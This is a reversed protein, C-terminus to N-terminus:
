RVARRSVRITDGIEITLGDTGVELPGRYHRRTHPILDDATAPSPVIHSYVALRPNVRAFIRGAQEPTTHHAIVRETTAPDRLQSLRRDADGSVVEHILVDAGRSHRVLEESPRTDGSLVVAHGGFDVRYGFAPAVPAHDVAFTTVRVGARDFVLGPAADTAELVVGAAPLREDIDRRHRIDFAYAQPLHNAFNRTGQPGIVPLARDRGFIWGTLWVDAFGILHDSHLHTVFVAELGSLAGAGFWDFLRISTGRGADFLLRLGGAEVLTSPGFRDLTPRPNGTGLLTVRIGAPQPHAAIGALQAVWLALLTVATGTRMRRM